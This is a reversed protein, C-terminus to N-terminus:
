RERRRTARQMERETERRKIAHRRDYQRRGKAVAIEVKAHHDKLYLRLPVLTSRERGLQLELRAIERKHLLLKRPRLTDHESYHSAGKFEAIHANMLWLEGDRIRAYAEAINVRGERVSKIETGTLVIGAEFRESLDYNFRARRNQAITKFRTGVDTEATRERGVTRRPM